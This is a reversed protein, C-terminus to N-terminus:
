GIIYIILWLLSVIWLCRKFAVDSDILSIHKSSWKSANLGGETLYRNRKPTQLLGKFWHKTVHAETADPMFQFQVSRQNRSFLDKKKRNKHRTIIMTALLRNAFPLFTLPKGLQSVVM